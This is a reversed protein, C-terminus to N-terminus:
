CCSSAAWRRNVRWSLATGRVLMRPDELFAGASAMVQRTNPLLWVIALLTGIWMAQSTSVLVGGSNDRGLGIPIAADITGFRLM